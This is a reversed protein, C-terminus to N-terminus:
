WADSGSQADLPVTRSQAPGTASVFVARFRTGAVDGYDPRSGGYLPDFFVVQRSFYQGSGFAGSAYPGFEYSSVTPETRGAPVEVIEVTVSFDFAAEGDARVWTFGFQSGSVQTFYFQAGETYSDGSPTLSSSAAVSNPLLLSSVGLATSRLVTRREVMEM